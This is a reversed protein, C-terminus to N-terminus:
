PKWRTRQHARGWLDELRALEIPGVFADGDYHGCPRSAYSSYEHVFAPRHPRCRLCTSWIARASGWGTWGHEINEEGNGEGLVGLTLGFCAEDDLWGVRPGVILYDGKWIGRIAAEIRPGHAELDAYTFEPKVEVLVPWAGHLVFDPIYGPCDLPEYTWSWGLLDFMAAWRAELRSRFLHGRYPTEIGAHQNLGNM